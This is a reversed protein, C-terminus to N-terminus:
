GVLAAISARAQDVAARRASADAATTIALEARKRIGSLTSVLARFQSAMWLVAEAKAAIQELSVAGAAIGLEASIEGVLLPCTAIEPEAAAMFGAAETEKADWSLQEARPYADLIPATVAEIMTRLEARAQTVSLAFGGPPVFEGQVRDYTWGIGASGAPVIEQWGAPDGVLGSAIFAQDALIVQVVMRGEDLQAFESM